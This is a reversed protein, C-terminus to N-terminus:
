KRFPHSIKNVIWWRRDLLILNFYDVYKVNQNEISIKASATKGTVNVYFINTEWKLSKDVEDPNYWSMYEDRDVIELNGDDNLMFFKWDPHLVGEYLKPDSQAHGEHYYDLIAKEIEKQAAENDETM